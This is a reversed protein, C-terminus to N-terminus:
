ANPSISKGVGLGWEWGVWSGNLKGKDHTAAVLSEFDKMTGFIPDIERFDEVGYRFDKLPSKYFSTIWVTKINLTTIYDLKEQIGSSFFDLSHFLKTNKPQCVLFWVIQRINFYKYQSLLIQFKTSNWHLRTRSIVDFEYEPLLGQGKVYIWLMLFFVKKQDHKINLVLVVANNM